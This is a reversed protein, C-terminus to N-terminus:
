KVFASMENIKEINSIYIIRFNEHIEIQHEKPNEPVDFKRESKDNKKDINLRENLTSPAEDINDKKEM